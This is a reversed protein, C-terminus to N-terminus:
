PKCSAFPLQQRLALQAGAVPDTLQYGIRGTTPDAVGDAFAETFATMDQGLGAREFLDDRGTGLRATALGGEFTVSYADLEELRPTGPAPPICGRQLYVSNGSPGVLAALAPDGAWSEEVDPLDGVVVVDGGVLQGGALAGVGADVAKAVGAMSAGSRFGLAYGSETGDAAFFHAEWSVDEAGFGYDGLLTAEDARLVGPSLTATETTARRWFDAREAPPLSSTLTVGLQLAIREYDTVTVVSTDIPVYPLVASAPPQETSASTTVPAPVPTPAADPSPIADSCGSVALAALALPVILARRM